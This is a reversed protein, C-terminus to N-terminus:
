WGRHGDSVKREDYIRFTVTDVLEDAPRLNPIAIREM